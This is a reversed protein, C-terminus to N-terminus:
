EVRNIKRFTLNIRAEANQTTKPVAHKWYHQTTGQMILLSGNTIELTHRLEKRQKHKLQFKRSAGFSVSAIVPNQGLEPEDDSHWSVSDKGDRYLNLLVSNFIVGTVPEVESKIELLTDLWVLPVMTLGSYTYKSDKEGYWATLRPQMIERGAMRIKDQRWHIKEFLAQFYLKSM